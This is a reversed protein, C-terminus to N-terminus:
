EVKWKKIIDALKILSEETYDEKYPISNLEEKYTGDDNLSYHFGNKNLIKLAEHIDEICM